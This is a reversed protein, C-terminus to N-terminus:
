QYVVLNHRSNIINKFSNLNDYYRRFNCIHVVSNILCSGNIFDPLRNPEFNKIPLSYRSSMIYTIPGSGAESTKLLM